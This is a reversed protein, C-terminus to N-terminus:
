RVMNKSIKQKNEVFIVLVRRSEHVMVQHHSSFQFTTSNLDFFTLQQVASSPPAAGGGSDLLNASKNLSRRGCERDNKSKSM